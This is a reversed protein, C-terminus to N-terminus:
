NLKFYGTAGDETVVKLTLSRNNKLSNTIKNETDTMSSVESGNIETIEYGNRLGRNWADSNREVRHIYINFRDPDEPTALSRLTLGIDDFHQQEVGRERGNDPIEDWEDLEPESEEDFPDTPQQPEPRVMEDLTVEKTLEERDRWITLNITDEPRFMAVKEQLQNSESVREGNVALVIDAARIGARYAAGGEEVGQISVGTIRDLGSRRAMRDDVAQISVGLMGRKVEGFEILDKAVKLALNSPVAFGYGQYSGSQTAIATNIGILEGSTNVLAGGSNGRNIAADTQIFSEIRLADNIIEVERSLASVIGATVTSRLRFPNGIALVWEGVETRDSNGIIATPLGDSDVKLVALDTSPDRGVVRADFTRKDDLTITIGDRVADEIVHNNTLIYGDETIVVGSGVTRARPPVFRQWFEDDDEDGPQVRRNRTSVVTEIFVVTPTVNKAVSRFVFRDDIKQLDEDTWIPIDSRNVETVRVEALDFSLTGQRMFMLIMGALVGILLLLVASLIKDHFKM